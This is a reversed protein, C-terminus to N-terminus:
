EDNNTNLENFLKKNICLVTTRHSFSVESERINKVRQHPGYLFELQMKLLKM